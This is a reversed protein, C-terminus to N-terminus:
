KQEIGLIRAGSPIKAVYNTKGDKIDIAKFFIPDGETSTEVEGEVALILKNNTFYDFIYRRSNLDPLVYETEISDAKTNYIVIKENKPDCEGMNISPDFCFMSRSFLSVYEGDHSVGMFSSSMDAISNNIMITQVIKQEIENGNELDYKAIAVKGDEINKSYILNGDDTFGSDIVAMGPQIDPFSSVESTQLNLKELEATIYGAHAPIFFYLYNRDPSFHYPAITSFIREEDFNKDYLKVSEDEINYIAIGDSLGIAVLRRDKSEVLNFGPVYDKAIDEYNISYLQNNRNFVIHREKCNAVFNNNEQNYTNLKYVQGMWIKDTETDSSLCDQPLKISKTEVGTGLNKYYITDGLLYVVDYGSLSPAKTMEVKEYKIIKDENTENQWESSDDPEEVQPSIGTDENLTSNKSLTNNWLFYLSVVISFLSLLVSLGLLLLVKKNKQLKEFIKICKNLYTDTM